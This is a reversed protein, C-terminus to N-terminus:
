TQDETMSLINPNAQMDKIREIEKEQKKQKKEENKMKKAAIRFCDRTRTLSSPKMSSPDSFRDTSRERDQVPLVCRARREM